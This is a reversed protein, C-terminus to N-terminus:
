SKNGENPSIQSGTVGSQRLLRQVNRWRPFFMPVRQRYELYPEGFAAIMRKEEKRALLVYAVVIVPYLVVTLLTPWHVVGEGFIALLIGIYQPHRVMGYLGNTVLRHEQSARYIERWGEALMGIGIFVLTYGAIMAIMMETMATQPSLGLLAAWLPERAHLWPLDIRFLRTLIYLTVPFGYMEAYLAIIFAQVLGARTWDRWERPVLYRYVVWSAIVIMFIAIPWLM